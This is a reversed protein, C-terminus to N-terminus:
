KNYDEHDLAVVKAIKNVIKWGYQPAGQCCPLTPKAVLCDHAFMSNIEFDLRRWHLLKLSKEMERVVENTDEIEADGEDDGQMVARMRAAHGSYTSTTRKNATGEEEEGEKHSEKSTMMEIEEEHKKQSMGWYEVAKRQRGEFGSHGAVRDGEDKGRDGVWWRWDGFSMVYRWIAGRTEYANRLEIAASSHSVQHDFNVASVVTRHAFLSLPRVFRDERAMQLLLVSSDRLMLHDMTASNGYLFEGAVRLVWGLANPARRVGLHPTGIACFSVPRLLQSPGLLNLEYLRSLAFRSILGGLSHAVISFRVPREVKYLSLWDRIELVLREGLVDIGDLTRHENICSELVLAECLTGQQLLARRVNKLAKDRPRIPSDIGHVLVILDKVEGDFDSVVGGQM